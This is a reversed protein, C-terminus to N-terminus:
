TFQIARTSPCTLLAIHAKGTEKATRKYLIPGAFDVGLVLFPEIFETRHLPQMSRTLTPLPRVYRKCIGCKWIHKKVLSRLQPVWFGKRIKCMTSSVGWYIWLKHYHDIILRASSTEKSILVPNYNPVTHTCCM